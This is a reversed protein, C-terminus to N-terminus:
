LGTKVDIHIYELDLDKASKEVLARVGFVESQYHGGSIMTINSEKCMHYKEHSAEGTIFCDLNESVASDLCSSAGGSVIGILHMKEKGFEVINLGTDKSFNLAKCIEKCTLGKESYGKYGIFLNHYSGFKEINTLNLLKAMEINNGIKDNLDLPLHIAFLSINNDLLLKIRKYHNDVINIPKGWFLGHHVVLADVKNEIAKQITDVCVDVASAIKKIKKNKDGVQLGNSSIDVNKYKEIELLKELYECYDKNSVM